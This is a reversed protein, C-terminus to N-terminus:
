QFAARVRSVRWWLKKLYSKGGGVKKTPMQTSNSWSEQYYNLFYLGHFRFYKYIQGGYLKREGMGRMLHSM